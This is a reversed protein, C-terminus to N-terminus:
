KYKAKIKNINNGFEKEIGELGKSEIKKLKKELQDFREYKRLHVRTEKAERCLEMLEGENLQLASALKRVLDPGPIEKFSEIRQLEAIRGEKIEARKCLKKFTFRLGLRKEKLIQGLRKEVNVKVESIIYSGM